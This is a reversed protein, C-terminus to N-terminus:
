RGLEKLGEALAAGGEAEIDPTIGVGNVTKGNPRFYETVTIKLASGDSFEHLAQTVGKGYTKSGIVKCAGNDQLAATLIESASATNENVLVVCKLDASGPKSNYIKESGDKKKESMIRCAPLLYDAIEISEETLGGGNNRLDIIFRDCGRAELEKVASKFDAATEERFSSIGIYGTNRHGSVAFYSVSEAEIKARRITKELIEGNRDIELLVSSGVDGAMMDVAEDADAPTKGDIKVILDGSLIGAEMAPTDEFVSMIAIDDGDQAVGVGIGVYDSVYRKQFEEYEEATFYEAYPDGTDAVIKRLEEDGIKQGGSKALPDEDIMRLIEFHKGYAKDLGSYYDLTRSTVFGGLGFGYTLLMIVAFCSIVGATFWLFRGGGKKRNKRRKKRSSANWKIEDRDVPENNVARGGGDVQYDDTDGTELGLSIEPSEANGANQSTEASESAKEEVATEEDESIEAIEEINEIEEAYKLREEQM